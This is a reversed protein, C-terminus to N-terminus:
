FGTGRIKEILSDLQEDTVRQGRITRFLIPLKEVLEEDKLVEEPIRGTAAYALDFFQYWETSSKSIRLDRAYQELKERKQPPPLLGRELKSINAPDYGKEQCFRRLTYGLSKRREKFFGGFAKLAPNTM